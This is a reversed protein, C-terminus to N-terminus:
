AASLEASLTRAAVALSAVITSSKDSLRETAGIVSIGAVLTRDHAYVPTAYTSVGAISEAVNTAYGRERVGHLETLLEDIDTKTHPTMQEPPQSALIRRIQDDDQAALYLKGISTCYLPRREGVPVTFRVADACEVRDLYVLGDAQCVGLVITEGLERCLRELHPRGYAQLLQAAPSAHALAVVRLGISYTKNEHNWSVYGRRRMTQLIGHATSKPVGLQNSIETLSLGRRANFFVDLMDMVRAASRSEGVSKLVSATANM